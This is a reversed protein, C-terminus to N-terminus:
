KGIAEYKFRFPNFKFYRFVAIFSTIHWNILQLDTGLIIFYDLIIKMFHTLFIDIHFCIKNKVTKIISFGSRYGEKGIRIIGLVTKLKVQM